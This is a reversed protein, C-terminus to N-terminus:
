AYRTLGKTGSGAMLAQLAEAKGRWRAVQVKLDDRETQTKQLAQELEEIRDLRRQRYKRAAASNRQRRLKTVDSDKSKSDPSEAQVSDRQELGPIPGASTSYISPHKLTQPQSFGSDTAQFDMTQSYIDCVNVTPQVRRDCNSSLPGSFHLPRQAPECYDPTRSLM